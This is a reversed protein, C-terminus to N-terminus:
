GASVATVLVFEICEAALATCKNAQCFDTHMRIYVGYVTTNRCGNQVMEASTWPPSLHIDDFGDFGDGAYEPQHTNAFPM